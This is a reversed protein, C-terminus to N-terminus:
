HITPTKYEFLKALEAAEADTLTYIKIDSASISLDDMMEIIDQETLEPSGETFTEALKKAWKKM